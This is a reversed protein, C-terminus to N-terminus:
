FSFSLMVASADPASRPAGIATVYPRLPERNPHVLGVVNEVAVHGEGLPRGGLLMENM